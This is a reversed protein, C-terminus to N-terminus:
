SSPRGPQRPVGRQEHREEGRVERASPLEVDPEPQYGRHRECEGREHDVEVRPTSLRVGLCEDDKSQGDREPEDDGVRVHAADSRVLPAHVEDAEGAFPEDVVHQDGEATSHEHPQDGPDEVWGSDVDLLNGRPHDRRSRRACDDDGGPMSDFCRTTSFMAGTSVISKVGSNATISAAAVGDDVRLRTPSANSRSNTPTKSASSTTTRASTRYPIDARSADVDDGPHISPIWNTATTLASTRSRITSPVIIARM